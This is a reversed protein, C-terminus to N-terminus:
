DWLSWFVHDLMKIGEHMEKDRKIDNENAEQFMTESYPNDINKDHEKIWKWWKDAEPTPYAENSENANYFKLAMEKLYKIWDEDEPFEENGPWGWHNDALHNLTGTFINLYYNDLDFTDCNAYGKTIRQYAYKISRFFMRINKHWYQPYYWKYYPNNFVNLQNMIFSRTYDGIKKYISLIRKKNRIIIIYYKKM